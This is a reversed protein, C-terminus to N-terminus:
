RLRKRQHERKVFITYVKIIEKITKSANENSSAAQIAFLGTDFQGINDASINYVLGLKERIETFLRSSMTGGLINAM